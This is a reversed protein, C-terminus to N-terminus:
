AKAPTVTTIPGRDPGAQSTVDGFGVWSGKPDRVAHWLYEDAVGPRVCHLRHFTIVARRMVRV